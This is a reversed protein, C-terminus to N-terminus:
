AEKGAEEVSGKILVPCINKIQAKLKDNIAKREKYAHFIKVVSKQIDYDPIPIEIEYFRDMDLNTRISADSMFCSLRDAGKRLFWMMIYEPIVTNDKTELVTYAPSIIIPEKGDHLAIRICEDRGTQMGSFAFQGCRVIKYKKLDVGNINAVSSMFEKTINIGMVEKIGEDNRCDIEKLLSGVNKKISKHKCNEIFAVADCALKLDELGREYCQQNSVMANYVDVYKQQIDIPPLNIEMECFVPWDFTERASGWSNFRAFRDFEQRNFYIYLFTSNLLDPRKVRFVTYISSILIEQATNYAVAIKDGRRSTDAVYAFQNNRVIKYSTMSLGDLDAKTEIFNKDTSIGRVDDATYKNKINREDCLEILDGLKYKSLAM